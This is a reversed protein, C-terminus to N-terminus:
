AVKELLRQFDSLAISVVGVKSVIFRGKPDDEFHWDGHVDIKVTTKDKAKSGLVSALADLTAQQAREAELRANYLADDRVKNKRAQEIRQVEKIRESEEQALKRRQKEADWHLEYQSQTAIFNAPKILAYYPTIHPEEIYVLFGYKRETTADPLKIFDSLNTSHTRGTLSFKAKSVMKGYQVREPEVTEISSEHRFKNGKNVGIFAWELNLQHKLIDNTQM